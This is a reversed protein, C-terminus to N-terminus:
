FAIYAQKDTFYSNRLLLLIVIFYIVKFKVAVYNVIIVQANLMALIQALLLALHLSKAFQKTACFDAIVSFLVKVFRILTTQAVPNFSPNM